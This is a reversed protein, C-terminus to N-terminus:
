STRKLCEWEAKTVQQGKDNYYKTRTLEDVTKSHNIPFTSDCRPCMLYKDYDGSCCSQTVEELHACRCETCLTPTLKVDGQQNRYRDDEGLGKKEHEQLFMICCAAHDLHSLGSEPDTNEGDMHATLHRLAAGYLRSWKFGKRWNHSDYKNAGFTLVQATGELASKSLLEMRPKDKDYKIGNM